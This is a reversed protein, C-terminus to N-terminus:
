FGPAYIGQIDSACSESIATDLVAPIARLRANYARMDPADQVTLTNVLFNPLEAHLSYLFGNFPRQYRRYQYQLEMRQLETEWIDYNTRGAPSLKYRDCQFTMRGVSAWRMELRRRQGAESINDLRDKGEKIGLRTAFHLQFKLDQAFEADLSATLRACAATAVSAAPPQAATAVTPM